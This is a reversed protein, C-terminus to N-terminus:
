KRTKRRRKRRRKTRRTRKTRRKTTRKTRRKTTRKTRRKTKRRRSKRRGGLFSNIVTAVDDNGGIDSQTIRNVFTLPFTAAGGQNPIPIGNISIATVGVTAGGKQPNASWKYQLTARIVEGNTKYFTYREGINLADVNLSINIEPQGIDGM